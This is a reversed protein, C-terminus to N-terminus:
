SHWAVRLDVPDSRLMKVLPALLDHVRYLTCVALYLFRPELEPGWQYPQPSLPSAEPATLYYQLFREEEGESYRGESEILRKIEILFFFPGSPTTSEDHLCQAGIM